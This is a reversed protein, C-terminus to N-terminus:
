RIRIEKVIMEQTGDEYLIVAQLTGERSITYYGDEEASIRKGDLYWRVEAVQTANFIRLPIKTGSLFSGDANRSTGSLYIYPYTGSRYVKTMFSTSASFKQDEAIILKVTLRYPTQAKLGEITCSTKGKGVKTTGTTNGDTWEIEFGQNEALNENISWNVIAADQFVTTETITVPRVVNFSVSSDPNKRIGVLALGPASGDWRCFAPTTDSGFNDHDEYPFFIEAASKAEPNASVIEACQRDPRCNIQGLEWRESATLVRGYYDSEGAPNSSKDIHYVLLGGGGVPEDQGEPSRCEFLFYEGEIETDFRLYHHSKHIPQLTYEGIDLTECTGAGLMELDLANLNPPCQGDRNKCGLDMLATGWLGKSIGGSGRGDTDYLDQLGFSHALEHCFIGIGAQRPNLGRDSTLECAVTYSNITKGDISLTQGSNQLLGHQPWINDAGAGDAESIGAALIFVNDVTGDSDNDYLSFDINESSLSCAEKVAEYLLADRRDSYNSGYYSYERSLTVAPAIDFTFTTSSGLQGNFYDQAAMVVGELETESCTFQRDQFQAPIVVMRFIALFAALSAIM